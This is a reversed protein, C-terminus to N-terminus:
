RTNIRKSFFVPINGAQKGDDRAVGIFDYGYLSDKLYVLQQQLVEQMGVFDAEYYNMLAAVKNKRKEWWNEGDSKLDLRINYSMVKTETQASVFLVTLVFSIALGTRKM